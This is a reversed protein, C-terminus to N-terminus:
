PKTPLTNWAVGVKCFEPLFLPAGLTSQGGASAGYIGVRSIDCSPDRAALARHRAIRDPFGSDGLNKWAVDHFAKSRTATGMGDIQVVIFGLDALAQMGIVKDGGRHYGFPWFTEPAFSDHPGAYINEIVPYRKGRDFDRPRLVLGRIDTVGDGGKAVFAAPTKWRRGKERM